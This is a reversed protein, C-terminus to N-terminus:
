YSKVDIDRRSRSGIKSLYESEANRDIGDRSGIVGGNYLSRVPRVFIHPEVQRYRRTRARATETQKAAVDGTERVPPPNKVIHNIDLQTCSEATRRKRGVKIM